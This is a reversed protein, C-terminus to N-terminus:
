VRLIYFYVLMNNYPLRVLTIERNVTRSENEFYVTSGRMFAVGEILSVEKHGLHATNICIWGQSLAM